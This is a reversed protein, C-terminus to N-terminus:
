SVLESEIRDAVLAFNIKYAGRCYNQFTPVVGPDNEEPYPQPASMTMLEKNKSMKKLIHKRRPLRYKKYMECAIKVSTELDVDHGIAALADAFGGGGGDLNFPDDDNILPSTKKERKVYRTKSPKSQAAAKHGNGRERGIVVDDVDSGDERIIQAAADVEDDEDIEFSAATATDVVDGIEVAGKQLGFAKELEVQVTQTSPHYVLNLTEGRDNGTDELCLPIPESGQVAGIELLLQRLQDDLQELPISEMATTTTVATKTAAAASQWAKLMSPDDIIDDDRHSVEDLVALDELILEANLSYAPNSHGQEQSLRLDRDAKPFASTESSEVRPSEMESLLAFNFHHTHVITAISYKKEGKKWKRSSLRHNWWM